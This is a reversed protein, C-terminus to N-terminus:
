WVYTIEDLHMKKVKKNLVVLLTLLSALGKCGKGRHTLHVKYQSFCHRTKYICEQISQLDM